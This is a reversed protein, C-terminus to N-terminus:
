VYARGIKTTLYYILMSWCMVVALSSNIDKNIPPQDTRRRATMSLAHKYRGNNTQM